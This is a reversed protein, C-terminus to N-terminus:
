RAASRCPAAPRIARPTAGILIYHRMRDGRARGIITSLIQPHAHCGCLFWLAYRRRIEDAPKGIPSQLRRALGDDHRMVALVRMHQDREVIIATEVALRRAIDGRSRIHELGREGPEDFRDAVRHDQDVPLSADDRDIRRRGVHEFHGRRVQDALLQGGRQRREAVAEDKMVDDAQEVMPLPKRAVQRPQQSRALPQVDIQNWRGDATRDHQTVDASRHLIERSAAHTGCHQLGYLDVAPDTVGANRNALRHFRGICHEGFQDADIGGRDAPHTKGREQGHPM